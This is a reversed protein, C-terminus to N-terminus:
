SKEDTAAVEVEGASAEANFLPEFMVAMHNLHLKSMVLPKIEGNITVQVVYADMNHKTVEQPVALGQELDSAAQYLNTLDTEGGYKALAHCNPCM